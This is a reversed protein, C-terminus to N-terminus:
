KLMYPNSFCKNKVYFTAYHVKLTEDSPRHEKITCHPVPAKPGVCAVPHAGGAPRV